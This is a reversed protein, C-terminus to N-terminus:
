LSADSKKFFWSETEFNTGFLANFKIAFSYKVSIEFWGSSFISEISISAIMLLYPFNVPVKLLAISKPPFSGFKTTILKITLSPSLLLLWLILKNSLLKFNTPTALPFWLFKLLNVTINVQM